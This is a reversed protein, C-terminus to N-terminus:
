YFTLTGVHKHVYADGVNFISYEITIDQNQAAINNVINKSAVLVASESSALAFLSLVILALQM